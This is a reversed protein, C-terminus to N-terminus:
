RRETEAASIESLWNEIESAETSTLDREGFRVRNYRETVKVALPMDLAYAFELPTQHPERSFGKDALIRLMRDYFEVISVARRGRLWDAMTRWVKLKVIQRGLWVLLVVGVIGLLVYLGAHGIASFRAGNGRDGKIDSWWEGFLEQTKSLFSSTRTQYDLFGSRVSRMLSRQEQNDYAVFYQIWFTEFADLYKQIRGTIGMNDAPAVQGAPPTPDFKVWSGEHPFYVEVWSHANKQRVVYVGATDNYDGQHFGNVVRTAIGQTRLMIAMATAFYECHGQKVSFLFDSLPQPGGAKQELTYSFSTQLYSEIARAKDYRNKRGATVSAALDSIRSDFDEPLALYDTLAASYPQNDARLRDVSPTARDSLVRYSIRESTHTFTLSGDMDKYVTPLNTQLAVIRPLGFLVPTDLPELYVTQVALNDRGTAFDVQILEREGKVYQEKATRNAKSWSQNDFTNLAVGRWYLDPQEGDTGDIRIRMVVDDSQQIRGIGGLKVTDSFGSYTSINGQLGGFGAGGVRPLFFF